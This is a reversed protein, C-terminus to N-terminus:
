SVAVITEVGSKRRAAWSLLRHRIILHVSLNHAVGHHPHGRSGFHHSLFATNSQVPIVHQPWVDPFPVSSLKRRSETKRDDRRNMASKSYRSNRNSTSSGYMQGQIGWTPRNGDVEVVQGLIEDGAQNKQWV